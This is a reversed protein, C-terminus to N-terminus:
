FHFVQNKGRNYLDMVCVTLALPTPLNEPGSSQTFPQINSGELSPLVQTIMFECYCQADARALVLSGGGVCLGLSSLPEQSMGGEWQIVSQACMRWGPLGDQKTSEESPLGGLESM